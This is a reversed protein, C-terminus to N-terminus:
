RVAADGAFISGFDVTNNELQIREASCDSVDIAVIPRGVLVVYAALRELRVVETLTLKGPQDLRRIHFPNSEM